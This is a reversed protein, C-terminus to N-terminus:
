KEAKRTTNDTLINFNEDKIIHNVPEGYEEIAALVSRDWKGVNIWSFQRGFVDDPDKERVSVEYKLGVEFGQRLAIEAAIVNHSPLEGAVNYLMVANKKHKEQPIFTKVMVVGLFNKM